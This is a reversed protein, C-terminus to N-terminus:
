IAPCPSLMRRPGSHQVVHQPLSIGEHDPLEIAEGAGELLEDLRGLVHFPAPDAEHREGSPPCNLNRTLRRGSKRATAEPQSGRVAGNQPASALIFRSLGSARMVM